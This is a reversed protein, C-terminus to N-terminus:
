PSWVCRFGSKDYRWYPIMSSRTACGGDSFHHQWSSGRKVRANGGDPGLPNTDPSVAYYGPDYWDQCWERLNGAMDMVGYPSRDKPFSGVPATRRFGDVSGDSRIGDQWNCARPDWENGWPYERGDSSRAAKEWEAETPLRKGAWEAYAQADHWSVNTVPHNPKFLFYNLDWHPNKSYERGTADCFVKYLANTVEYKDIYYAELYVKHQPQGDRYYNVYRGTPTRNDAYIGMSDRSGMIFEGAPILVMEVGDDGVITPPFEGKEKSIEIRGGAKKRETRAKREGGREKCGAGVILALM